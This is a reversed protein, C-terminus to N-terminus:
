EPRHCSWEDNKRLTQKERIGHMRMTEGCQKTETEHAYDRREKKHAIRMRVTEGGTKRANARPKTDREEFMLACDWMKSESRERVQSSQAGKLAPVREM